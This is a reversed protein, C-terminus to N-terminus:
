AYREEDASSGFPRVDGFVRPLELTFTSGIGVASTVTLGGGLLQALKRSLPLGLGSGTARWQLASEVQGYEEFIRPQDEPAIGIGTDAVTFVITSTGRSVVQLRIEGAETFKIANAVLNRLIQSVKGEDSYM